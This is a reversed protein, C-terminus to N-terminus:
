EKAFDKLKLGYHTSSCNILTIGVQKLKHQLTKKFKKVIKKQLIRMLNKQTVEWFKKLWRKM